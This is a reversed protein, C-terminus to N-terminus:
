NVPSGKPPSLSSTVNDKFKVSEEVDTNAIM